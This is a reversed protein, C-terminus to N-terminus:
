RLWLDRYQTPDKGLGIGPTLELWSKRGEGDNDNILFSFGILRGTDLASRGFVGAPVMLEYVAGGGPKAMIAAEIGSLDVDDPSVLGIVRDQGGIKGIELELDNAEDFGATVADNALDLAVQLSDAEWVSEDDPWVNADDTVDVALYLANNAWTVWAKASHDAKGSWKGKQNVHTGGTEILIPKIDRWEDLKGDVAITNPWPKVPLLDLRITNTVECLDSRMSATIELPGEGVQEPVPMNIRCEASGGPKLSVQSPVSATEGEIGVTVGGGIERDSLNNASVRTKVYGTALSSPPTITLSVPAAAEIGKAVRLGKEGNLLAAIEYVGPSASQPVAVKFRCVRAGMDGEEPKAVAPAATWGSPVVLSASATPLVAMGRLTVLVEQEMGLFLREPVIDAGSLAFLAFGRLKVYQPRGTVELRLIGNEPKVWRERGLMDAVLVEPETAPIEVTAPKDSTTWVVATHEDGNSFYRGYVDKGLNLKGGYKLGDLRWIMENYAVAAAKPIDGEDFLGTRGDWGGSDFPQYDALNYYFIREVGESLFLTFVRVLMRAQDEESMWKAGTPWGIETIWIPKDLKFEKLLDRISGMDRNVDADKWFYNHISLVDFSDGAGEEFVKRMFGTDVGATVCGVLRADSDVVRTFARTAKLLRAYDAANPEPSWFQALNPENWVEYYRVRGKYRRAMESAYVGFGNAETDDAPANPANWASFYCLIPMLNIGRSEYMEVAADAQRWDFVGHQPEIKGWWFDNRGWKVGLRRCLDLRAKGVTPIDNLGIHFLAGGNIGFRSDGRSQEPMKHVVAFSTRSSAKGDGSRCALYYIGTQKVGPRITGDESTGSAEVRGDLDKVEWAVPGDGAKLEVTQGVFFLNGPVGTSVALRSSFAPGVASLVVLVPLLITRTHM